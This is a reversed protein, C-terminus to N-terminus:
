RAVDQKNVGFYDLSQNLANFGSLVDFLREDSEIKHLRHLVFTTSM